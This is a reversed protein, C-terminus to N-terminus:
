LVIVVTIVNSQGKFGWFCPATFWNSCHSLATTACLCPDTTKNQTGVGLSATGGGGGGGLQEGQGAAM